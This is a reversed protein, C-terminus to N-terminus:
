SRISTTPCRLLGEQPDCVIRAFEQPTDLIPLLGLRLLRAPTVEERTATTLAPGLRQLISRPTQPPAFLHSVADSGPVGSHAVNSVALTQVGLADPPTLLGAHREAGSADHGYGIPLTTVLWMAALLITRRTAQMAGRKSETKVSGRDWPYRLRKHVM